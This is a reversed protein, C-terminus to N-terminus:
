LNFGPPRRTVCQGQDCVPFSNNYQVTGDCSGMCGFHSCIATKADAVHSKNVALDLECPVPALSCDQTAECTFWDPPMQAANRITHDYGNEAARVSGCTLFLFLLSLIFKNM